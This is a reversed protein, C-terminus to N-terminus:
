HPDQQERGQHVGLEEHDESQTADAVSTIFNPRDRKREPYKPTATPVTWLPDGNELDEVDRILNRVSGPDERSSALRETGSAISEGRQPFPTGELAETVLRSAERLRAAAKRLKRVRIQTESPGGGPARVFVYRAPVEPLRESTVYACVTCRRKIEALDGDLTNTVVPEMASGCVPCVEPPLGSSGRYEMEVRAVGSTLAVRRLREPSLGAKPDERRLRELVLARFERQTEIRRKRALVDSAAEAIEEDSTM